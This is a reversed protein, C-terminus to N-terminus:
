KTRMDYVWKSPLYYHCTHNVFTHGECNSGRTYGNDGDSDSDIYLNCVGLFIIRIVETKGM